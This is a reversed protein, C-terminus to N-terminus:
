VWVFKQTILLCKYPTNSLKNREMSVETYFMMFMIKHPAPDGLKTCEMSVKKIILFRKHLTDAVNKCM